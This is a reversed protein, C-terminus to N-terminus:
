FETEEGESKIIKFVVDNPFGRSSLARIVRAREKQEKFPGLTKFKKMVFERAAALDAEPDVLLDKKEESNLVIGKTKLKQEIWRSGKRQRRYQEILNGAIEAPSKLYNKSELKNLVEEMVQHDAKKRARKFKELLEQRTHDRRALLHIARKLLRSHQEQPTEPHREGHDNRTTM